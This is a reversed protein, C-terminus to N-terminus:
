MQSPSRRLLVRMWRKRPSYIDRVKEAEAENNTTTFGVALHKDETPNGKTGDRAAGKVPQHLRIQSEEMQAAGFSHM